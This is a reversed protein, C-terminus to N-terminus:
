RALLCSWTPTELRVVDSSAAQTVVTEELVTPALRVVDALAPAAAPEWDRECGTRGSTDARAIFVDAGWPTWQEGALALGTELARLGSGLTYDGYLRGTDAAPALTTPDLALSFAHWAWDDSVTGAVLVRTEFLPDQSLAADAVVNGGAPEGIVSLDIPLWPAAETRAVFLQSPARTGPASRGVFVLEQSPLEVVADLEVLQTENGFHAFGHVPSQLDVDGTDGDVRLAYGRGEDTAFSVRYGAAVIDGTRAGDRPRAQIV